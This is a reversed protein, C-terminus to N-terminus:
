VAQAEMKLSMLYARALRTKNRTSRALRPRWAVDSNWCNTVGSRPLFNVSSYLMWCRVDFWSSETDRTVIQVIWRNYEM